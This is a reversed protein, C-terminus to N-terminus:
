GRKKFDQMNYMDCIQKELEKRSWDWWRSDKLYQIDSENFRYGIIKAPVGVVIAYDPIDKSVVAGAGIVVGDGIKKVSPLIIANQGVWVDNGIQIPLYQISDEKVYNLNSNYLFPHTTIYHMPHNRNYIYVNPAFSCYRGVSTGPNISELNFIGGYSGYGINIGHYQSYVKRLWLSYFEGGDVRKIINRIIKRLFCNKVQYMKFITNLLFNKM